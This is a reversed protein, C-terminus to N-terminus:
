IEEPIELELSTLFMEEGDVIELRGGGCEPCRYVRDGLEGRFGCEQCKVVVPQIKIVLEAEAALTEERFLDFATKLLQPEVGSLEGIKLEIKLIKVAKRNQAEREALQLLSDVISYEHM